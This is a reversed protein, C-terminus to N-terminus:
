IYYHFWRLLVSIGIFIGITKIWLKVGEFTTPYKNFIWNFDFKTGSNRLKIDKPLRHNPLFPPSYFQLEKIKFLISWFNQHSYLM